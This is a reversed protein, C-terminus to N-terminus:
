EVRLTELMHAIVRDTREGGTSRFSLSLMDGPARLLYVFTIGKEEGKLGSLGSLKAATWVLGPHKQALRDRLEGITHPGDTRNLSVAVFSAKTSPDAESDSFNTTISLDNFRWKKNYELSYDGLKSDFPVFSNGLEGGQRDLIRLSGGAFAEGGAAAVMLILVGLVWVWFLRM